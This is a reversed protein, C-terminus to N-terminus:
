AILLILTRTPSNPIYLRCALSPMAQRQTQIISISRVQLHLHIMSCSHLSQSESPRSPVSLCRRSRHAISAKGIQSTLPNLLGQLSSRRIPNRPKNLGTGILVHDGVLSLSSVSLKPEELKVHSQELWDNNVDFWIPLKDLEYRAETSPGGETIKWESDWARKRTQWQNYRVM